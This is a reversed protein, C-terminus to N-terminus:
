RDQSNSDYASLFDRYSSLLSHVSDVLVALRERQLRLVQGTLRDFNSLAALLEVSNQHVANPDSFDLALLPNGQRLLQQCAEAHVAWIDEPRSNEM